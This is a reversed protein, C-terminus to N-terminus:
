GTRGFRTPQAATAAAGAAAQARAKLLERARVGSLVADLGAMM